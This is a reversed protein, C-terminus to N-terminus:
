FYVYFFYSCSAVTSSFGVHQAVFYLLNLCVHLPAVGM